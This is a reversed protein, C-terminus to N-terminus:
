CVNASDLFIRVSLNDNERDAAHVFLLFFESGLRAILSVVHVALRIFFVHFGFSFLTSIVKLCATFSLMELQTRFM